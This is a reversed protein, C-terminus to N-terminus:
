RNSKYVKWQKAVAELTPPPPPQQEPTEEDKIIDGSAYKRTWEKVVKNYTERDHLYLLSIPEDGASEGSDEIVPNHLVSCITLMLKEITLAPSWNERLIDINIRGHKDINPHYVKTQFKIDPPSFPYDIPFEISLKFIGGEFPTELQGIVIGQWELINHDSVPGFSINTPHDELELEIMEKELREMTYNEWPKEDRERTHYKEWTKDDM